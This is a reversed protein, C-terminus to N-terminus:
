LGLFSKMYALWKQPLSLEIQEGKVFGTMPQYSPSPSALETQRVPELTKPQITSAPPLPEKQLLPRDGTTPPPSARKPMETAGPQRQPSTTRNFPALSPKPMQSGPVFSPRPSSPPSTQLGGRLGLTKALQTCTERLTANNCVERLQETSTATLGLTKAAALLTQADPLAKKGGPLNHNKAFASCKEYNESKSCTTQCSILDQCGLSAQAEKLVTSAPTSSEKKELGHARAYTQCVTQNASLDCFAKCAIKNECNGLEAIPFVLPVPTQAHVRPTLFVVLTLLLTHLANM